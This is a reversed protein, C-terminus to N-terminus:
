SGRQEGESDEDTAGEEEAAGAEDEGSCPPRDIPDPPEETGPLATAKWPITSINGSALANAAPRGVGRGRARVYSIQGAPPM